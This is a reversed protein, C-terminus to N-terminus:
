IRIGDYFKSPRIWWLTGSSHQRSWMCKPRVVIYVKTGLLSDIFAPTNITHAAYVVTKLIIDV